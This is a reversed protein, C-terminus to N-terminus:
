DIRTRFRISFSSAAAMTGQPSFRLANVNTDYGAAPTYAYSAGGNNSYAINGTGLTLGSTGATFVFNQTGPTGADIDGNFFTVNAPLIDAILASNIDVTSGGSNTVTITYDVDAGPINFRNPDTGSTSVPAAAKTIAIQPMPCFRIVEVGFAQQGTNGAGGPAQNSNAYRLEVTTVPQTFTATLTGTSANNGSNANGIADTVAVTLPTTSVGLQLSSSANTKPGAGNNTGFPTAISPTFTTTGDTGTVRLWDRFQNSAFDIDNTQISFERVPQAFTFRTAIVRTNAGINGSRGAFTGGIVLNNGAAPTGDNILASIAPLQNGAVVSSTLDFTQFSVSFPRNGGLGNTATFNSVNAYNLTQAPATGFDFSFQNAANCSTQAFAPAAALAAALALARIGQSRRCPGM